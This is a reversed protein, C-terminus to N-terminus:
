PRAIEFIVIGIVFLVVLGAGFAFRPQEPIKESAHTVFGEGQGLVEYMRREVPDAHHTGLHGPAQPLLEEHLRERRMAPLFSEFVRAFQETFSSATYQMRPSGATYGCGWTVSRRARAGSLWRAVAGVVLLAALARSAWLASSLPVLVAEVNAGVPFLALTATLLRIGLEPVLGLVVAAAAHLIMPALMGPPSEGGDHVHADRRNGLFTIGFARTMSLCSVGGVFALVAAAVVLAV